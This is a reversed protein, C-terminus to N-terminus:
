FFFEELLEKNKEYTEKEKQLKRIQKVSKVHESKHEEDYILM